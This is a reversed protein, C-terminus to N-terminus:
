PHGHRRDGRARGGAQAPRLRPRPQGRRARLDARRRNDAGTRRRDGTGRRHATAPRGLARNCLQDSANDLALRRLVEEVRREVEDRPLRLLQLPLAVNEATTLAAALGFTQPVFGLRAARGRGRAPMGKGRRTLEGESPAIIGALVHLLTTKGSGAPGTVCLIRGPAARLSVGSLVSREGSKVGLNSATLWVSRETREAAETGSLQPAGRPAGTTRRRRPWSRCKSPTARGVPDPGPDALRLDVGDPHRRIRVLTNPPLVELVDPPLQVSGDSGVVAFEEGHRGEAGVRGDRITVTRPIASAVEPDHTVIVITSGLRENIAHM